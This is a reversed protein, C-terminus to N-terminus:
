SSVPTHPQRGYFTQVAGARLLVMVLSVSLLAYGIPRVYIALRLGPYNMWYQYAVYFAEAFWYCFLGIILWRSWPQRLLLGILCALNFLLMGAKEAYILMREPTEMYFGFDMLFLRYGSKSTTILVILAIVLMVWPWDTATLGTRRTVLTDGRRKICGILLLFLHGIVGAPVTFLALLSAPMDGSKPISLVYVTMGIWVLAWVGHFIRFAKYRIIHGQM